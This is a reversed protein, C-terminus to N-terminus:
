DHVVVRSLHRRGRIVHLVEVGDATPLYLIVFQPYHRVNAFRLARLHPKGVRLRSGSLPNADLLELTRQVEDRVEDAAAPNAARIGALLDAVEQRAQPRFNVSM